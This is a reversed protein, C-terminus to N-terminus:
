LIFDTTTIPDFDPVVLVIELDSVGDGDVDGQVLWVSGGLSINEFRLQGASSAGTGAFAANGIFTFADNAATGEKADIRSLDIKDGLIFDQIGDRGASISHFVDDYRFVDNGGGGTMTDAGLGGVILDNGTGGRLLDNGAGSFIRFHGGLESTGDFVLTETALLRSGNITITQGSALMADNWTISYDFETGGGSFFQGDM